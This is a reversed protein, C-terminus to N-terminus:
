EFHMKNVVKGIGEIEVVVEDGDKLWKPPKMGFGVGGPTGTMILSGAELTQGTSFFSVLKRVGFCLDSTNTDQRLEGNVFTKMALGGADGLLKTSVICPGLPAYKDFSKSFSWQPMMGAKDKEMQWDRCSVDNSSVYGAVYSLADAESVNKCPKGIVITLEGEYDCQAQGLAPIPVPQRTDAVTQSPKIFLTPNAPLDFGTELIHTKYNLGTCRVISVDEPTLPGLLQKVEDEEGTPAAQIPTPGELVKVKLGGKQALDDIDPKDGSVIPEGYKTKGDTASVYRILRDWQTLSSM